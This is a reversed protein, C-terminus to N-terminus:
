DTHITGRGLQLLTSNFTAITVVNLLQRGVGEEDGIELFEEEDDFRESNNSTLFDLNLGHACKHLATSWILLLHSFRKQAM